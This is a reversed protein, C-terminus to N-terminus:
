RSRSDFNRINLPDVENQLIDMEKETPPITTPVDEPINIHFGTNERVEEISSTEHISRVRMMGVEDFELVALDSVLTTVGKYMDLGVKKRWEPSAGRGTIFDVKEVLTRTDHRPIYALVHQCTNIIDGLAAGGPFRFKPQSPSGIFSNNLNGYQDIQAPRIMGFSLTRMPGEWYQYLQHLTSFGKAKSISKVYEEEDTMVTFLDMDFDPSIWYAAYFFDLNPAHTMRALQIAIVASPIAVGTYCTEYDKMDRALSVIIQDIPEYDTM